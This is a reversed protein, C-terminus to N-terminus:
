RQRVAFTASHREGLHQGDGAYAVRLRYTGTPLIGFRAQLTGPADLTRERRVLRRTGLHRVTVTVRGTPGTGYEGAASVVVSTPIRAGRGTVRVQLRTRVQSVVWAVTPSTSPEQGPLRPVFSATVAHEGVPTERPLVLSAAGGGSLNARISTGDITFVVDGDAPGGPATVQASATITQGYASQASSLTLTTTSPAAASAPTSWGAAALALCVLAAARSRDVTM